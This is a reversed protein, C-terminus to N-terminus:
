STHQEAPVFINLMNCFEAGINLIETHINIQSASAETQYSSSVLRSPCWCSCEQCVNRTCVVRGLGQM